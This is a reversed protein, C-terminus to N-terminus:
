EILGLVIRKTGKKMTPSHFNLLLGVKWGGIRLYSLVQAEHIPLLESVAKLEVVVANAVLLDLRYGADLQVGKYAVPLAVQREFPVGRLTLEYGLCTEYASELLGPGLTRHVEIAAGIIAETLGNIENATV